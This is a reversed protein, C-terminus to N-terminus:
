VDAIVCFVNLTKKFFFLLSSYFSINGKYKYLSSFLFLPICNDGEKLFVLFRRSVHVWERGLRGIFGRFGLFRSLSFSSLFFELVGHTSGM